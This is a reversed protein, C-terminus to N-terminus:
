LQDAPKLSTSGVARHSASRLYDINLLKFGTDNRSACSTYMSWDQM